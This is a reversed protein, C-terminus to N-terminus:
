TDAATRWRLWLRLLRFDERALADPLLVLVESRGAQCLLLVAFQATVTTHPHIGAEGHTGDRRSFELRGDGRLSLGVISKPGRQRVLNRWASALILILLAVEIWLQIPVLMAM